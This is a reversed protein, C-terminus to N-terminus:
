CICKRHARPFTVVDRLNLVGALYALLRDYGLGWGGHPASGFRRLDLYWSLDGSNNPYVHPQEGDLSDQGPETNILGLSRMKDALVDFNHERLSGGAIECMNSVILDFCAVTEVSEASPQTAASPAMYFPKIAKPYDTVFVPCGNGVIEALFKEHETQLGSLDDVTTDFSRKSDRILRVAEHYPIRPWRRETLRLWRKRLDIPEIMVNNLSQYSSHWEELEIGIKSSVLENAVAKILSEVLAMIDDLSNVFCEEAELM